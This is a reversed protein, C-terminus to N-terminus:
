SLPSVKMSIEIFYLKSFQAVFYQLPTGVKPSSGVSVVVAQYGSSTTKRGFDM